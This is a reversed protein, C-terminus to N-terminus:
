QATSPSYIAHESNLPQFSSDPVSLLLSMRFGSPPMCTKDCPYACDIARVGVREFYWDGVAEAIAWTDQRETQSHSFCSNIFLGNHRSRAFNRIANVMHNRFGASPSTISSQIQWTDYVANLIFLPTRVSAILNQPFFCSTPDLHNTCIRPLNKLVGQLGVFGGYLDRLTRGGSVDADLFLGADSLCKVRTTSPFLGHLEDCHIIAALGGPMELAALWIRQGRFKLKATKLESDGTFSAGDCYRLRVRNRNFFDPNQEADSSLIGTFPLEKETFNSSVRRTTKRFVCSRVSQITETYLIPFSFILICFRKSSSGATQEQDM